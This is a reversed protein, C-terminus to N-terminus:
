AGLAVPVNGSPAVRGTLVDALGQLSIEGDGFTCLVTTARAIVTADFPDLLAILVADPVVDLLADLAARQGGNRLASRALLICRRGAQAAVLSTLHEIMEADPDLGVRLLESRVGRERLALSLSARVTAQEVGTSAVGEFSIVTVPENKAFPALGTATSRVLAIARRAAESGASPDAVADREAAVHLQAGRAAAERLRALHIEGADVAAVIADRAQRARALSHSVLVGDAGAAIALAAGRATGVTREIAAMEMCDTTCFGAFGLQERLLGTIVRPSTTAPVGPDLATVDLHGLMVARAGAAIAAVFPVLHSASLRELDLDIAPMLEHSDAATAGHGPFHKFVAVVGGRELGRAFALGIEAVRVPDDGFSRTGVVASLPETALDLVPAFDVTVGARRLDDAVLLGVREALAVDGCAGLAMMSPIEHAGSTLRVVRGGEQDIAVYPPAGATAAITQVVADVLARTRAVDTVNRGFLVVGGPALERLEDLPVDRAAAGPFGVCLVAAALRELSENDRM